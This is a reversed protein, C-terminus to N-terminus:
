PHLFPNKKPKEAHGRPPLFLLSVFLYIWGLLLHAAIVFSIQVLDLVGFDFLFIGLALLLGCPLLSAGALRWAAMGGLDRGTLYGALWLPLWYITGLVNWLLMLGLLLVGLLISQIIPLWAGWLPELAERSVPITQNPPNYPYYFDAYGLLSSVRITDRGFEVQVHSTCHITGSHNLDIVLALFREEALVVPSDGHWALEGSFIEGNGTLQHIAKDVAPVCSDNFFWLVSLAVLVAIILQGFWLRQCSAYAFSVVGRPTIPETIFSGAPGSM